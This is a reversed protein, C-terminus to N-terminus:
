SASGAAAPRSAARQARWGTLAVVLPSAIFISSYTGVLIGVTLVFAFPKLAGGGFILLAVVVLWTSGTTIITRSLTQNISGNVTKALERTGRSETNERIRDFVVVTDNVSYGVLTLFAAVVPLSLELGFAAFLGLTILTDHALAAVAAFGWVLQFRVWIYALMGILSGLIALLAKNRMEGSISEELSSQGRVAFPGFFGQAQELATRAEATVADIGALDDFSRFITGQRRAELIGEAAAAAADAGIAGEIANAVTRADRLNLDLTGAAAQGLAGRVAAIAAATQDQEDAAGGAGLKVYIENDGPIGITTVQPTGRGVGALASRIAGLQPAESFKLQLEIGGTFEIGRNIGRTALLGAAAVLVIASLVLAVKRKSMFDFDPNKLLQFV